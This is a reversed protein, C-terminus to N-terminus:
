CFSIEWTIKNHLWTQSDHSYVMITTLSWVQHEWLKPFYCPSAGGVFHEGGERWRCFDHPLHYALSFYKANTVKMKLFCMFSIPPSVTSYRIWFILITIDLTLNLHKSLIETNEEREWGKQHINNLAFHLSIIKLLRKIIELTKLAIFQIIQHHRLPAPSYSTHWSLFYFEEEEQKRTSKSFFVFVWFM